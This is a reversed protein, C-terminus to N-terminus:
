IIQGIGGPMSHVDNFLVSEFGLTEMNPAPTDDWDM